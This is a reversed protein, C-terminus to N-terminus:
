SRIIHSYHGPVHRQCKDCDARFGMAISVKMRSSRATVDSPNSLSAARFTTSNGRGVANDLTSPDSPFKTTPRPLESALDQLGSCHINRQVDRDGISAPWGVAEGADPIALSPPQRLKTKKKCQNNDNSHPESLPIALSDEDESIPSPLRRSRRWDDRGRQGTPPGDSPASNPLRSPGSEEVMTDVNLDTTFHDYIPTATRGGSINLSQNIVQRPIPSPVAGGSRGRILDSPWPSPLSATGPQSDIMELDSDEDPSPQVQISLFPLNGGKGAQAFLPVSGQFM